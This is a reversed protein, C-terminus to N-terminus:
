VPFPNHARAPRAGPGHEPAAPDGAAAPGPASLSGHEVHFMAVGGPPLTVPRAPRAEVRTALRQAARADFLESLRRATEPDLESDPDDLLWLSADLGSDLHVQEAALQLLCVAVKAQGRSLRAPVGHALIRLDARHPGALTQGRQSEAARARRLAEPLSHGAPWGRQLVLDCGHLFPFHSCLNLFHGRWAQVFALRKTTIQDALELFTQDWASHGPGGARLAANRQVVVRGLDRRLRGIQHEVHFLNWDLLARRLRPPGEVLAQPNEGVLKVRLPNERPTQGSLSVGNVRRESSQNTWQYTVLVEGAGFGDRFRGEILTRGEGVTTLPGANRGRFSRGRALLYIAELLTTKGAGNAGSLLIQCPEGELELRLRRLNRLNTVTLSRLTPSGTAAM